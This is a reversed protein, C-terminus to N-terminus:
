HNSKIEVKPLSAQLSILQEDSINDCGFINLYKLHSLGKLASIEDSSGFNTKYLHLEELNVLKTLIDSFAGKEINVCAGADFVILEPCHKLSAIEKNSGFNTGSVTFTELHILKDLVGAFAGKKINDCDDVFLMKLKVCHKLLAIEKANGFNTGWIIFEELDLLQDLVRVFSGSEINKCRSAHFVRLKPCHVLLAIEKASGFNTNSASFLELSVLKNLVNEFSGAEINPCDLVALEKLKVCYKLAAIEEKNGFDTGNVLFVELNVLKKLVEAFSGVEINSCGFAALEKLKICHKLATIEETSGFNTNNVYFEELDILKNLVEAFSGVEINSCGSVILKKLKICNRLAAIEEVSGFNTELASFEELHVCKEHVDQFAGKQLNSCNNLELFKLHTCHKLAVIEEVSGFNTNSVKFVQLDVFKELIKSFSGVEINPCGSLYLYMLRPCHKLASVEEASGFNTEMASFSELHVLKDLVDQFAGKKINMCGSVDLLNLQNLQKMSAVEDSSGFNTNNVDFAELYVLKDLVKKFLGMKINECYSLYLYKLIRCHKLSAIEEPTGFNTDSANFLQLIAFNELVGSFAGKEINRCGDVYLVRLYPCYKISNIEEVSGFNTNSAVFTDLGLFQDLVNAFSGKEINMCGLINLVRLCSCNKLAAVEETSGFKTNSIVFEQLDALNDLIGEFAGREISACGDLYLVRLYLNNKLETLEDASGFNTNWASFVELDVLKELVGKFSGVEINKCGGISLNRLKICHGLLAIEKASGFNTSWAFFEELDVLKDLVGVFSGLQINDCRDVILIKLNLCYKLPTIDDVSGFNTNSINFYELKNLKNLVDKFSGAEIGKCGSLNLVNLKTCHYLAAIEDPSGFNTDWATFIKLKDLKNFVNAFSGTKINKCESVYLYELKSCNKLSTVEEVSGFNTNLASFMELNALKDLVIKFSGYSIKSNGCLNLLKISTLDAIVRLCDDNVTDNRKLDLHEIVGNKLRKVFSLISESTLSTNDGIGVIRLNEVNQISHLVEDNIDCNWLHIEELGKLNKLLESIKHNSLHLNDTLHLVKLDSFRKLVELTEDNLACDPLEVQELETPLSLLLSNLSPAENSLGVLRLNRVNSYKKLSSLEEESLYGIRVQVNYCKDMYGLSISDQDKYNEEPVDEDEDDTDKNASFYNFVKNVVFYMFYAGAARRIWSFVKSVTVNSDDEPAELRSISGFSFGFLLISLIALLLNKKMHNKMLGIWTRM